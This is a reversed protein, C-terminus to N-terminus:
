HRSLAFNVDITTLVYVASGNLITPQYRWTKVADVAAQVLEQPGSKAVMRAVVGTPSILTELRVTGQIGANRAYLPYTPPGKSIARNSQVGGGVLILKTPREGRAPLSDRLVYLTLDDPAAARARVSLSKLLPTYDWALHGDAYLLGGDLALSRSAGYLSDKDSSSEMTAKAKAAFESKSRAEDTLVADGIGYEEAVVGLYVRAYLRGLERQLGLAEYIRAAEPPDGLEIWDAAARSPPQALWFKEIATFSEPDAWRGATYIRAIRSATGFLDDKPSHQLIWWIHRARAVKVVAADATEPRSTWYSLLRIHSERDDSQEMAAAATDSLKAGEDILKFVSVVDAAFLGPCALLVFLIPKM